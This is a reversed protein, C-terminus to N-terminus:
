PSFLRVHGWQRMGHGASPGRELVLPQLGREKLHAAAALGVPGGGIVAIPLKTTQTM